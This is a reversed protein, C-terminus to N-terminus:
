ADLLESNEHINGIVEIYKSVNDCWELSRWNQNNKLVDRLVFVKQNNSMKVKFTNSNHKLLDGEYIDVGNKDRLGTFQMVISHKNELGLENWSVYSGDTFEFQDKDQLNGLSFPKTMIPYNDDGFESRFCRFKITRM